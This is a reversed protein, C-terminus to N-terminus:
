KEDDTGERAQDTGRGDVISGDRRGLLTRSDGANIVRLQRKGAPRRQLVCEAQQEQQVSHVGQTGTSSDPLQPLTRGLVKSHVGVGPEVSAGLRKLGPNGLIVLGRPIADSLRWSIDM